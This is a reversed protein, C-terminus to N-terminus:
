VYAYRGGGYDFNKGTTWAKEKKSFAHMLKSKCAWARLSNVIDQSKESIFCNVIDQSRVGVM